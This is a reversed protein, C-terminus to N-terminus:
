VLAQPSYRYGWSYSPSSRRGAQVAKEVKIPIPPFGVM